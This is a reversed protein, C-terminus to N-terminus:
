LRHDMTDIPRTGLHKLREYFAGAEPPCNGNMVDEWSSEMCVELLKLDLIDEVDKIAKTIGDIDSNDQFDVQLWELEPKGCYSGSKPDELFPNVRSERKYTTKGPM